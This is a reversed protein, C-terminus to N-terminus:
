ATSDRHAFALVDLCTGVILALFGAFLRASRDPSDVARGADFSKLVVLQLPVPASATLNRARLSIGSMELSCRSRHMSITDCHRDSTRMMQRLTQDDLTSALSHGQSLFVAEVATAQSIQRLLDPGIQFGSIVYGLLIGDKEPWLLASPCFM